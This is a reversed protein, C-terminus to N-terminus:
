QAGDRVTASPGTTQRIIHLFEEANARPDLGGKIADVGRQLQQQLLMLRIRDDDSCDSPRCWDVSRTAWELAPELEAMVEQTGARRAVLYRLREAHASAVAAAARWRSPSERAAAEGAVRLAQDMQELQELLRGLERATAGDGPDAALQTQLAAIRDIVEPTVLDKDREAVRKYASEVSSSPSPLLVAAVVILAACIDVLGVRVRMAPNM